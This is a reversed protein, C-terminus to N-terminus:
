VTEEDFVRLLALTESDVVVPSQKLEEVAAFFQEKDGNAFYLKLRCTHSALNNPFFVMGREVWKAAKEYDGIEILRLSITEMHASTIEQPAKQYLAEGMEEMIHVFNKQEIDTFARQELVDNMYEVLSKAYMISEPGGELVKRREKEVKIRFENLADQLMSAAYHATESDTSNLALSISYLLQQVDGRVVNMMLMRLDKENTIEIAEELSVLNREKEEEAGVVSKMRDKSFIVDALDTTETFFVRLCIYSILYFLPGVVPCLIMVIFGVIYNKSSKNAMQMLLYVLAVIFNVVLICIFVIMPMTM